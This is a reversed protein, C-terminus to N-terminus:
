NKDCIKKYIEKKARNIYQRSLNLEKSIEKDTKGEIVQKMIIKQQKSFGKIGEQLDSYFISNEFEEENMMIEMDDFMLVENVNKRDYRGYLYMYKTKVAKVLYAVCGAESATNNIKTVAMWLAINLEQKVDEIEYTGFYRTYKNVLPEFQVMLEEFAKESGNQFALIKDRTTKEM